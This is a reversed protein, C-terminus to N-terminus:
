YLYRTLIQACIEVFVIKNRERKKEKKIFAVQMYSNERYHTTMAIIENKNENVRKKNENM